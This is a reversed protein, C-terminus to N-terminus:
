ARCHHFPRFMEEGSKPYLLATDRVEDGGPKVRHDMSVHPEAHIGPDLGPM